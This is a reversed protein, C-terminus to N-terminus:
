SKGENEKSRRKVAFLINKAIVVLSLIVYVIYSYKLFSIKHVLLYFPIFHTREYMIFFVILSLTSIACFLMHLKRGTRKKFTSVTLLVVAAVNLLVFLIPLVRGLANGTNFIFATSDAAGIIAISNEDSSVLSLSFVFGILIIRCWLLSVIDYLIVLASSISKKIMNSRNM